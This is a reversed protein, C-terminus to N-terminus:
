FPSSSGCFGHFDGKNARKEHSELYENLKRIMYGDILISLHAMHSATGHYPAFHNM